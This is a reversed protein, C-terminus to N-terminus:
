RALAQGLRAGAEVEFPERGRLFIRAPRHGQLTIEEGNVTIWGGERLGVVPVDNEELFQRLREERTEGM